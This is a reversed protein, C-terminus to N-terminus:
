VCIRRLPNDSRDILLVATTMNYAVKAVFARAIARRGEQPRAVWRGPCCRMIVEIRAVELITILQQQKESLPGSEGQLWPFPAGRTNQELLTIFREYYPNRRNNHNM